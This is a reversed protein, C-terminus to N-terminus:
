FVQRRLHMFCGTTVICPNLSRHTSIVSAPMFVKLFSLTIYANRCEGNMLYSCAISSEDGALSLLKHDWNKPPLLDDSVQVFMGGLAHKAALNWGTVCDPRGTNVYARMNEFEGDFAEDTVLVVEIEGWNNARQKWKDLVKLILEPRASTYLLSIRTKYIM